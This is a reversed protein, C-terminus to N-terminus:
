EAPRALTDTRLPDAPSATPAPLEKPPVFRRRFAESATSGILRWRTAIMVLLLVVIVLMMMEQLSRARLWDSLKMKQEYKDM